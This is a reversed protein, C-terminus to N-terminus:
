PFKKVTAKLNNAHDRYAAYVIGSSDVFLSVNLGYGLGDSSEGSFGAEGVNEWDGDDYEMVTTGGADTDRFGIFLNGSSDIYLDIDDATRESVGDSDGVYSWSNNEFKMIAALDEEDTGAGSLNYYTGVVQSYVVYPVGNLLNVTIGKSMNSPYFSAGGLASWNSGDYKYVYGRNNSEECAVYVNTNDAVISTVPGQDTSVENGIFGLSQWTSGDFKSVAVKIKNSDGPDALYYSVYISNQNVIFLSTAPHSHSDVGTGLQTWAGTGNDSKKLILQGVQNRYIVYPTGNYVQLNVMYSDSADTISGDGATAWTTGTWKKVYWNQQNTISYAVYLELSGNSEDGSIDIGSITDESFGPSGVNSWPDADQKKDDDEDQWFKFNCQVSLFLIAIICTLYLGKIKM